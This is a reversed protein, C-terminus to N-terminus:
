TDVCLVHPAKRHVEALRAEVVALFVLLVLIVVRRDLVAEPLADSARRLVKESAESVEVLAELVLAEALVREGADLRVSAENGREAGLNHFGVDLLSAHAGVVGLCVCDDGIARGHETAASRERVESTRGVLGDGGVTVGRRVWAGAAGVEVLLGRAGANRVAVDGGVASRGRVILRVGHQASRLGGRVIADRRISRRRRVVLGIRHQACLVTQRGHGCVVTRKRRGRFGDRGGDNHGIIARRRRVLLHKCARPRRRHVGGLRRSDHYGLVLLRRPVLLHGGQAAGLKRRVRRCPLGHVRTCNSSSTWNASPSIAASSSPGAPAEAPRRDDRVMDVRGSFSSPSTFGRVPRRLMPPDTDCRRVSRRLFMWSLAMVSRQSRMLNASSSSAPMSRESSSSSSTTVSRGLFIVSPMRTSLRALAKRSRGFCLGLTGFSGPCFIGCMRTMSFTSRKTWAHLSSPTGSRSM